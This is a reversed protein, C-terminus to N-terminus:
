FPSRCNSDLYQGIETNDTKLLNNSFQIYEHKCEWKAFDMHEKFHLKSESVVM